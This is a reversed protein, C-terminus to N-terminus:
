PKGGIAVVGSVVSRGDSVMSLGGTDGRKIMRLWQERTATDNGFTSARNEYLWTALSEADPMVPSIPTGETTTEYMQLHTRQEEPWSPMFEGHHPREGSWDAFCWMALHDEDKPAWGAGDRVFGALWQREEEDYDARLREM